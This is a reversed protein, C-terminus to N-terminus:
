RTSSAVWGLAAAAASFCAHPVRRAALWGGIKPIYRIFALEWLGGSPVGGGRLGAAWGWRGGVGGGTGASSPCNKIEVGQQDMVM